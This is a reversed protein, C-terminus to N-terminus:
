GSKATTPPTTAAPPSSGALQAAQEDYIYAQQNHAQYAGLDGAKLAAQGAKLEQVAQALLSQVTAGAPPAPVPGTSAPPLTTPTPVTTTSTSGQSNSGTGGTGLNTNILPGANAAATNCYASFPAGIQCLAGDLSANSSHYAQGDYVVVVDRLEPIHNTASEVYVPEVYLLTNDIPVIDVEGLEVQSSQQNYFTLEASIQPNSRIANSILGPGDVTQGPPLQFVKLQGYTGPDSSATMFATLNQSSGTASIPVFPTILVFNVKPQPSGPLNALIYQPQLRPVQPPLIQGNAGIVTAGLPSNSTLPGSGPDPSVAWAQAQSYFDSANTLHYRGYMNTQIQFINEPYRFHATIGPFLKDAQSVPTFLDPFAREYVKLIPDGTNMDFFRMSGDYASVVVKVSNRVYNFTTNLGSNPPLGDLNANQSYPYNDSVTYADIVWYVKGNLIVAYPDSDFKLFPAAKKVRATVNRIYMVRSSPTIQGSLVFNADGFRLAFAARRILSGAPVGGTGAYHTTVQQGTTANEYDLEKTKSDAIVYKNTDQGNDYYIQSGNPTLNVPSPGSPPLGSLSFNPNGNADVGSQSIPALVAGYGHTYQLHQNVFGSPVSSNLERVSAVTATEQPTGSGTDLQYRGLSLADFSYYSRLAQYKDFTNLINVAPDLLRVNAITQQNVSAQPTSGQIESGALAPQYKYNTDVQVKDLGYAARTADINRQIYPAERTLESPNVRLAQYLAPYATGVLLSVLGWLAVAVTPLIWGRQRINALFLAASIVAIVMLLLKAPADAHVSTATAGNVVHARSLDLALRDFYYAVAKIIALAGLLVSLHAKVASGVRRGAAQPTIGGNLYHFVASVILAVVVAEFAWGILFRIFPLQFVYFGVDKHFQPDSTHFSVHYRFLDWNNWERNTGIGGLLGFVASVILRIKLQRGYSFDRYRVVLENATGADVEAPAVRDVVTLNGLMLGFFVASFVVALLIKTVLVGRFVSTFGVSQFWLYDTWFTALGRLSAIVIIVVIVAVILGLRTRRSGRPM